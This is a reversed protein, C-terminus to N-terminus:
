INTPMLETLLNKFEEIVLLNPLQKFEEVGENQQFYYKPNNNSQFINSQFLVWKLNM